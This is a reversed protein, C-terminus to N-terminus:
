FYMNKYLSCTVVSTYRYTIGLYLKALHPQPTLKLEKSCKDLVKLSVELADRAKARQAINLYSSGCCYHLKFLTDADYVVHSTQVLSSVLEM